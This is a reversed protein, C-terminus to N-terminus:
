CRFTWLRQMTFNWGTVLGTAVMKALIDHSGILVLTHLIFANLCLGVVAVTLFKPARNHWGRHDRGFTWFNNCVFSVAVACLFSVTAALVFRGAFLQTGRTLFLYTAFDLATVSAGVVAYRTFQRFVEPRSAIFLRYLERLM